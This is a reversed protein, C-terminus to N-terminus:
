RAPPAEPGSAIVTAQLKERGLAVWATVSEPSQRKVFDYGTERWNLIQDRRNDLVLDGLDTPVTLVAHGEGNEDQVVTILLSSLPIGSEALMQRKLLVYDECDGSTDPMTWYEIRGYLKEDTTSAIRRNIGSNVANLLDWREHTLRLAQAQEKVPQCHGPQRACFDALGSPMRAAGFQRLSPVQELGPSSPYGGILQGAGALGCSLGVAGALLLARTAHLGRM